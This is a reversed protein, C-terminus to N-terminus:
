RDLVNCVRRSVDAWRDREDTTLVGIPVAREGKSLRLQADRVIARLLVELAAPPLPHGNPAIVDVAYFWDAITM